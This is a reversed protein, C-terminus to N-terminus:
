PEPTPTPPQGLEHALRSLTRARVEPRDYFGSAIRALVERAREPDLHLPSGVPAESGALLERAIGSIEIADGATSPSGAPRPAVPERAHAPTSERLRKPGPGSAPGSGGPHVEM